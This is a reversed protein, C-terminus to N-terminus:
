AHPPRYDRPGRRQCAMPPHGGGREAGPASRLWGQDTAIHLMHRISPDDDIVLIRGRMAPESQRSLDTKVSLQFSLQKRRGASNRFIYQVILGEQGDPSFQFREVDLSDLVQGYRLRNGYPYNVFEASESLAVGQNTAIDTVKAWFGDILKIPHLWLGGMEGPVHQGMDPFNGDQTGILYTRDGATVYPEGKNQGHNRIGALIPTAYKNQAPLLHASTLAFLFSLLVSRSLSRM